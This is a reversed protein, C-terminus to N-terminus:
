KMCRRKGSVNVREEWDQHKASSKAQVQGLFISTFQPIGLRGGVLLKGLGSLWAEEQKSM